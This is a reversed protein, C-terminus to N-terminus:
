SWPVWTVRVAVGSATDANVAQDSGLQVPSPAQTTVIVPARVTPAVKASL